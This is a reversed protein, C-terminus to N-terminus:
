VIGKEFHVTKLDVTKSIQGCFHAKKMHFPPRHTADQSSTPSVLYAKHSSFLKGEGRGHLSNFSM